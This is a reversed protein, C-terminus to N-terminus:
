DWSDRETAVHGAADGQVWLEKGLGQLELISPPREEIASALIHTIEQAISRRHRTAQAKLAEYLSDPLNKVNLRAM